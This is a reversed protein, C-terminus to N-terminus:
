RGVIDRVDSIQKRFRHVEKGYIILSKIMYYIAIYLFSLSVLDRTRESAFFYTHTMLLTIFSIAFTELGNLFIGEKDKKYGRELLLISLGLVAFSFVKLDTAFVSPEINRYGLNLFAFYIVVVIAIMVNRFIKDYITNKINQPLTKKNKLELEVDSEIDSM